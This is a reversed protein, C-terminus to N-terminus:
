IPLLAHSLFDGYSTDSKECLNSLYMYLQLMIIIKFFMCVM